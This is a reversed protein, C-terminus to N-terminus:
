ETLTSRKEWRLKMQSPALGFHHVVSRGPKLLAEHNIHSLSRQHHSTLSCSYWIPALEEESASIDAINPHSFPLMKLHILFKGNNADRVFISLVLGGPYSKFFFFFVTEQYIFPVTDDWTHVKTMKPKTANASTSNTKKHDSHFLDNSKTLSLSQLLGTNSVLPTMKANQNFMIFDFFFFSSCLFSYITCFVLQLLISTFKM